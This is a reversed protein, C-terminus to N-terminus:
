FVSYQISSRWTKKWFAADTQYAKGGQYEATKMTISQGNYTGKIGFLNKGKQALGSQGFKSELCAQAIVLSALINYKEQIRQAYSAIEQIFEM